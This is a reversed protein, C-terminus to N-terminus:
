LTLIFPIKMSIIKLYSVCRHTKHPLLLPASQISHPFGKKYKEVLDPTGMLSVTSEGLLRSEIPQESSLSVPQDSIVLDFHHIALDAVLENADGQLSDRICM